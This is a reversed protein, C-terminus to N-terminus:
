KLDSFEINVIESITRDHPVIPSIETYDPALNTPLTIIFTTGKDVKSKVTITGEHMEVLSKVLSLGLGSGENKRTLINDVQRFREFIVELMEPPIGVGSDKVRLEVYTGRDKLSVVIKEGEPTFKVANSLLNLLVREIKDIDIPMIKSKVNSTFKLDIKKQLVFDSVSMTVERILAVIDYEQLSLVLYGTTIRTIDLINNILKILRNCNQKMISLYKSVKAKQEEYNNSSTAANLMQLAGLIVTLPTRFEHSMNAFFEEKLRSIEELKKSYMISNTIEFASCIIHTTEGNSNHIPTSIATFYRKEGEIVLTITTIRNRSNENIALDTYYEQIDPVDLVQSIIKVDEDSINNKDIKRKLISSLFNNTLRNSLVFKLGPYTLIYVPAELQDLASNILEWQEEIQSAQEKIQTIDNFTALGFLFNNDKDYIPKGNFLFIRKEYSPDTFHVMYVYDKLTLGKYVSQLPYEGKPISSGDFYTLYFFDFIGEINEIPRTVNLLKYAAENWFLYKGEKNCFILGESMNDIVAELLSSKEQYKNSLDELNKRALVYETIENRVSISGVPKGKKFYPAISINWWGPQKTFPDTYMFEKVHITKGTNIAESHLASIEDTEPFLEELTKGLIDDMSNYGFYEYTHKNAFIVKLDKGAKKFVTVCTLSESIVSNLLLNFDDTDIPSGDIQYKIKEGYTRSIIKCAEKLQNKLMSRYELSLKTDIFEKKNLSSPIRPLGISMYGIINQSHRIPIIIIDIGCSCKVRVTRTKTSLEIPLKSLKGCCLTGEHHPKNDDKLSCACVFSPHYELSLCSGDREYICVFTKSSQILMKQLSILFEKDLVEGLSIM